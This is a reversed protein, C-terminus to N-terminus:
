FIACGSFVSYFVQATSHNRCVYKMTVTWCLRLFWYLCLSASALFVTFINTFCTKHFHFHLLYTPSACRFSSLVNKCTHDWRRCPLTHYNATSFAKWLMTCVKFWDVRANKCSWGRGIESMQTSLFNPLTLIFKFSVQPLVRVNQFM